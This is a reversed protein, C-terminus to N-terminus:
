FCCWCETCRAGACCGRFRVLVLESFLVVIEVRFLGVCNFPLVAVIQVAAYHFVNHLVFHSLRLSEVLRLYRGLILSFRERLWTCGGPLVLRAVLLGYNPSKRDLKCMPSICRTNSIKDM